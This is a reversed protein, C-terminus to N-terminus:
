VRAMVPLRSPPVLPLKCLRGNVVALAVLWCRMFQESCSDRSLLPLVPWAGCPAEEVLEEYTMPHLEARSPLCRQGTVGNVQGYDEAIWRFSRGLLSRFKVRKIM